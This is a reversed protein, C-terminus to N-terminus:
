NRRDADISEYVKHLLKGTSFPSIIINDTGSDKFRLVDIKNMQDALIIVSTKRRTVVSRINRLLELVRDNGMKLDLFILVFPNEKVLDVIEGGNVMTEIKFYLDLSRSLSGRIEEDLTVILVPQGRMNRFFLLLKEDVISVPSADTIVPEYGTSLIDLARDTDTQSDFELADCEIEEPNFDSFYSLSPYGRTKLFELIKDSVPTHAPIVRKGANDFLDFIYVRDKKIFEVPVTKKKDFDLQLTQLASLFDTAFEYQALNTNSKILTVLLSIKTLIKIFHDEIKLEPYKIFKFLRMVNEETITEPYLSPIIMLIRPSTIKKQACFARICYNYFELKDPELNGELQIVIINGRAHIDVLMPTTKKVPPLPINFFNLIREVIIVPNVPTSIFVCANMKKLEVIEPSSFNGILFVPIKETVKTANKKILFGKADIGKFDKNALVLHPKFHICQAYGDVCDVTSKVDFGKLSLFNNLFECLAPDPHCILVKIVV